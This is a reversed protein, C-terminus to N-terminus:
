GSVLAAQVKQKHQAGTWVVSVKVGPPGSEFSAVDASLISGEKGVPAGGLWFTLTGPKSGGGQGGGGTSAGPARGALAVALLTAIGGGLVRRMSKTIKM